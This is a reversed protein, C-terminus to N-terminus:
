VEAPPKDDTYGYGRGYGYRYYYQSKLESAPIDNLVWGLFNVRAGILHEALKRTLARSTRRARAVGVAGDVLGSLLLADSVLPVPATDFVILDYRQKLQEVITALDKHEFIRLPSLKDPVDGTTIIDVNPIWTRRTAEEITITKTVLEYVGGSRSLQFLKHLRGRRLDADILLVRKGRAAATAALNVAVLTKGEEISSSAVMLARPPQDLFQSFIQTTFSHCQEAIVSRPNKMLHEGRAVEMEVGKSGSPSPISMMIGLLPQKFEREAELPTKLTDDLLDILLVLGLALALGLVVSMFLNRALNRSVAGAPSPGDLRRVYSQRISAQLETERQRKAVLSYAERDEDVKRKLQNYELEKQRLVVAKRTEEGIAQRLQAQESENARARSMVAHAANEVETEIVRNITALAERTEVVKPHSPGYHTELQNLQELVHAHRAQMGQWQEAAPLSLMRRLGPDTKAAEIEALQAKLKMGATRAQALHSHLEGLTSSHIKHSDEFNSAPLENTKHFGYMAKEDAEVAARQVKAEESLFTAADSAVGARDTVASESYTDSFGKVYQVAKDPDLDTVTLTAVHSNRELTVALRGQLSGAPMKLRKEVRDSIYQSTMLRLQSNVFRESDAMVEEAVVETMKDVVRPPRNELLLNVSSSYYIPQQLSHVATLGVTTVLVAVALWWHRRLRNLVSLAQELLSPEPPLNALPDLSPESM